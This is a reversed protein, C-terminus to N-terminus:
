ASTPETKAKKRREEAVCARQITENKDLLDNFKHQYTQLKPANLMQEQKRKVNVSESAAKTDCLAKDYQANVGELMAARIKWMKTGYAHQLELNMVRDNQHEVHIKLRRVASEWTEVDEAQKGSPEKVQYRNLDIANLPVNAKVRRFESQLRANDGFTPTYDPLFELYAPSPAFKTMEARILHQVVQQATPDNYETDIYGLTDILAQSELLLPCSTSSTM